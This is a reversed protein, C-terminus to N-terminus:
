HNNEKQLRQYRNEYISFLLFYSFLFYLTFSVTFVFLTSVSFINKSEQLFFCIVLSFFSYHFSELPWFRVKNPRIKSWKKIFQATKKQCFENSTSM